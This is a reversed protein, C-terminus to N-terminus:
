RHLIVRTQSVLDARSCRARTWERVGNMRILQCCSKLELELELKLNLTRVCLCRGRKNILARPVLSLLCRCFFFSSTFRPDIAACTISSKRGIDILGTCDASGPRISNVEVKRGVVLQRLVDYISLASEVGLDWSHQTRSCRTRVVVFSQWPVGVSM